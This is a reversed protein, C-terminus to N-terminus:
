SEIVHFRGLAEERIRLGLGPLDDCLDICGDKATPKL